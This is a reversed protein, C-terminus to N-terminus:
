IQPSPTGVLLPQSTPAAVGGAPENTVAVAVPVIDPPTAFVAMRAGRRGAVSGSRVPGRRHRDSQYKLRGCRRCNTPHVGHGQRRWLARGRGRAGRTVKLRAHLDPDDLVWANKTSHSVAPRLAGQDSALLRTTSAVADLDRVRANLRGSIRGAQPLRWMASRLWVM